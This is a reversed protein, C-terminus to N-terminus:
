IGIGLVLVSTVITVLFCLYVQLQIESLWLLGVGAFRLVDHRILAVDKQRPFVQCKRQWQDDNNGAIYTKQRQAGPLYASVNAEAHVEQRAKRREVKRM